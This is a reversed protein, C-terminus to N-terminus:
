KTPIVQKFSLYKNMKNKYRNYREHSGNINFVTKISGLAFGILGLLAGGLLGGGILYAAINTDEEQSVCGGPSYCIDGLSEFAVGMLLGLVFGIGGGVGAGKGPGGQNRFSITKIQLVEIVPITAESEPNELWWPEVQKDWQGFRIISDGLQHLHGKEVSKESQYKIWTNYKAVKISTNQPIQPLTSTNKEEEWQLPPKKSESEANATGFLCFLIFVLGFYYASPFSLYKM